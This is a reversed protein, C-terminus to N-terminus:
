IRQGGGVYPLAFDLSAPFCGAAEAYLGKDSSQNFVTAAERERDRGRVRLEDETAKMLPSTTTPPLPSFFIYIRIFFLHCLVESPGFTHIWLCTQMLTTAQHRNYNCWINFLVKLFCM